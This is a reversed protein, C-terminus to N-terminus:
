LHPEAMLLCAGSCLKRLYWSTRKTQVWHFHTTVGACICIEMM